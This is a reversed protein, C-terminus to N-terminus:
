GRVMALRRKLGARLRPPWTRGIVLPKQGARRDLTMRGNVLLDLFPRLEGMMWFRAVLNHDNMCRFVIRRGAGNAEMRRAAAVDRACHDAHVLLGRHARDRLCECFPDFAPGVACRRVLMLDDNSRRTGIGIARDADLWFGAKLAPAAGMSFGLTVLRRYRRLPFRARLAAVIGALDPEFSGAGFAFGRKDPDRLMLLDVREADLAQLVNAVPLGLRGGVGGFAVILTKEEPSGDAGYLSVDPTIPTRRFPQVRRAALVEALTRAKLLTAAQPHGSAVLGRLFRITEDPSFHNEIATVAQPVRRGSAAHFSAILPDEPEPIVPRM